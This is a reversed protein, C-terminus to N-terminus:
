NGMECVEERKTIYFIDYKVNMKIWIYVYYTYLAKSHSFNVLGTGCVESSSGASVLSLSGIRLCFSRPLRGMAETRYKINELALFYQFDELFFLVFCVFCPLLHM